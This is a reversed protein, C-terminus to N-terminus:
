TRQGYNLQKTKQHQTIYTRQTNQISILYIITQLHRRRNLIPQSKMNNITDKSTCFRKLKVYDWKNIKPKAEMAQPSM